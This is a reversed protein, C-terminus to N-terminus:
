PVVTGNTPPLPFDPWTNDIVPIPYNRSSPGFVADQLTNHRAYSYSYSVNGVVTQTYLDFETWILCGQWWARTDFAYRRLEYDIYPAVQNANIADIAEQINTNFQLEATM